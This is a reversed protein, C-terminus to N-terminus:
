LDPHEEAILDFIDELENDKIGFQGMLNDATKNDKEMYKLNRKSQTKNKRKYKEVYEM